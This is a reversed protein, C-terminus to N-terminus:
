IEPKSERQRGRKSARGRDRQRGKEEERIKKEDKCESYINDLKSHIKKSVM